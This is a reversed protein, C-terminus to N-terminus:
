FLGLINVGILRLLFISFILFLIGSVAAIINEKGENLKTPDGQSTMISYGGIVITLLTWGGAIGLGWKLLFITIATVSIFPVCGIATQIGNEANCLPDDPNDYICINDDSCELENGGCSPAGLGNGAPCCTTNLGGCKCHAPAPKGEWDQTTWPCNNPCKDANNAPVLDGCRYVGPEEGESVEIQVSGYIILQGVLNITHTGPSLGGVTFNLTGDDSVNVEQASVEEGESNIVVIYYSTATCGSARVNFVTDQDGFSPTVTFTECPTDAAKAIENGRAFLLGILFLFLLPIKFISLLFIKQSM